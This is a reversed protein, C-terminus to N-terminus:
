NKLILQIIEVLRSLDNGTMISYHDGPIVHERVKKAIKNWDIYNAAQSLSDKAVISYITHNMEKPQYACMAKFNHCYTRYLTEFSQYNYEPPFIKLEKFKEFLKNLVETSTASNEDFNLKIKFQKTIDLAFQKIIRFENNQSPMNKPLHTDIMICKVKTEGQRALERTMELAVLGGFSWGM